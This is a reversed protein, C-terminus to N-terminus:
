QVGAQALAAQVQQVVAAATPSTPQQVLWDNITSALATTIKARAAQDAMWARANTVEDLTRVDGAPYTTYNLLDTAQQQTLVAPVFQQVFPAAQPNAPDFGTILVKDAYRGKAATAADSSAAMGAITATMTAAVDPGLIDGASTYSIRYTRPTYTPTNISALADADSLAARSPDSLAAVLQPDPQTM